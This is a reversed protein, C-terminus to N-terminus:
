VREREQLRQVGVGPVVEFERGRHDRVVSGPTFSGHELMARVECPSLILLHGPILLGGSEDPDSLLRWEDRIHRATRTSEGRNQKQRIARYCEWCEYRLGGKNSKRVGFYEATLPFERRCRRCERMGDQM